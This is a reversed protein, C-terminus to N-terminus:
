KAVGYLSITGSSINGSSFSFKLNNVTPSGSNSGVVDQRSTPAYFKGTYVPGAASSAALGYLYIQGSIGTTSSVPAGSDNLPCTTTSSTNGFITSNFASSLVGSSYNSNLYTSGNDTSMDMLLNVGNSAPIIRDFQIFYQSYANTVYTSTFSLSASSSATQTNLLILAAGSATVSKFSPLAAGGNSTLVFGSTAFGTDASQLPGTTTTGGCIPAYATFSTAGTGGGAVVATTFSPDAGAGNSVLPIGATASPAVNTITATGAGVLVNHITLGTLQTTLTSGSGAITISGTGLTNINGATPSIAGGSNGTLTELVGSTQLSVFGNADVTFRASDFAALGIKTADTAAIAQSIQVEVAMTNAGTGDTRVPNTGAAVTAGNITVLGGSTPTIPNTGTQVGISDIAQGGGSLTVFGNSDVSFQDSSFNCLGIKTADTTAIAQSRQVEVSMTNAGTGDTRVPNTGAAVTAGNITVLGAVTPVIPSTGTQVAISDIAQGGGSLGVFGNADVSFHASNFAGLGIKTADTAAIAQTTQVKVTVVNTAGTTFVPTTGAAATAGFVDLVNAIPIAIGSNTDFELPVEPPLSSFSNLGAQSM